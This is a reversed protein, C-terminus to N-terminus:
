SLTGGTIELREGRQGTGAPTGFFPMTRPVCQLYATIEDDPAVDLASVTVSQELFALELFGSVVQSESAVQVGNKLIAWTVTYVNNDILVGTTTAYFTVDITGTGTVKFGLEPYGPNPPDGDTLVEIAGSTPRLEYGAGPTDGPFDFYVTGDIAPGSTRYLIGYVPPPVFAPKPAVLEVEIEYEDENLEHVTRNVCRLWVYDAYGPLHSAKVQVRMGQM